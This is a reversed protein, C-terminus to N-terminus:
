LSGQGAKLALNYGENKEMSLIDESLDEAGTLSGAFRSDIQILSRASVVSAIVGIAIFKM